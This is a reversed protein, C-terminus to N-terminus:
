YFGQWVAGDYFVPYPRPIVSSTPDWNTYDAIVLMGTVPSGPPASLIPLIPISNFSTINNSDTGLITNGAISPNITLSLSEHTINGSLDLNTGNALYRTDILITNNALVEYILNDGTQIVLNNNSSGTQTYSINSEPNAITFSTFAPISSTNLSLAIVNADATANVSVGGSGTINLIGPLSNALGQFTIKKTEIAATNATDTVTILLDNAVATVSTNLESIKTAM